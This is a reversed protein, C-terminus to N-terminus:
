KNSKIGYFDYLNRLFRQLTQEDVKIGIEPFWFVVRGKYGVTAIEPDDDLRGLVRYGEREYDFTPIYYM